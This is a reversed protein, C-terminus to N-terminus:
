HFRECHEDSFVELNALFFELLSSSLLNNLEYKIEHCQLIDSTMANCSTKRLILITMKETIGRFSQAFKRLSLRRIVAM